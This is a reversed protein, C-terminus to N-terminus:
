AGRALRFLSGRPRARGNPSAESALGPLVWTVMM